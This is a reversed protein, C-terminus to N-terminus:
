DAEGCNSNYYGVLQSAEKLHRESIQTVLGPCDKFYRALVKRKLGFVGQTARIFFADESKKFLDMSNLSAEGQDWWELMYHSLKGKTVVRLFQREGAERDIDYRPNVLTIKTSTQSLWFAEFATSGSRFAVVKKAPYKKRKGNINTIRIKKYFRPSLGRENLYEVKGYMTDGPTLVLYDALNGVQGFLSGATSFMLLTAGVVILKSM